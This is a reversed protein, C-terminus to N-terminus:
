RPVMQRRLWSSAAVKRPRNMIRDVLLGLKTRGTEPDDLLIRLKKGSTTQTKNPKVELAGSRIDSYRMNLVDAPRQGTLYNLDMADQLETCAAGYVADWVPADAYYDRPRERNKRVGRVPNEKATYEYPNKEKLNLKIAM